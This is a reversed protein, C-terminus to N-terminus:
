KGVEPLITIPEGNPIAEFRVEGGAPQAAAKRGGQEIRCQKWAAPVRAILTLPGDYLQPDAKCALSLRVAGAGSELVRVEASARETEYKHASIPDTIWIQDQKAALKDLFATFEALPTVIWDGGVGHYIVHEVTGAALARDALRMMDDATKVHIMAGHGEIPPRLVLQQKALIESLQE